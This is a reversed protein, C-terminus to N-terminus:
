PKNTADLIAQKIDHERLLKEAADAAKLDAQNKTKNAKWRSLESGLRLQIGYNSNVLIHTAKASKSINQVKYGIWALAIALVAAIAAQWVADGIVALLM